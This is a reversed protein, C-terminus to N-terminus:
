AANIVSVRHPQNLSAKFSNKRSTQVSEKELCSDLILHSGKLDCQIM